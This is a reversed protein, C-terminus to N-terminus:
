KKILVARIPSGELGSFRLPLGIFLYKGPKVGSLNLGEYIIIDNKLLSEHARNDNGGKEKISLYDVGVADVGIKALHDAAGGDLYIFDNRFKKYGIKSNKTKFLIKEGKKIIEKKLDSVSIGRKVHTMDLVRCDGLFKSLSIDDLTKGDKFVHRPTDIHSGTHSGMLIESLQSHGSSFKKIKLKTNKPYTITAKDLKMSIDIIKGIKM